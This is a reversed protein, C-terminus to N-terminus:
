LRAARVDRRRKVKTKCIVQQGNDHWPQLEVAQPKCCQHVGVGVVWTRVMEVVRQPDVARLRYIRVVHLAQAVLVASSENFLDQRIDRGRDFEFSLKSQM